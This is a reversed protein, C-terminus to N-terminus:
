NNSRDTAYGELISIKIIHIRFGNYLGETRKREIELEEYKEQLNQFIDELHGEFGSIQIQILTVM